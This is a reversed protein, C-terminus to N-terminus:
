EGKATSTVSLLNINSQARGQPLYIVTGLYYIIEDTSLKKVVGAMTRTHNAIKELTEKKILVLGM